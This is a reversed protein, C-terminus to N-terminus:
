GVNGRRFGLKDRLIDFIVFREGKDFLTLLEFTYGIVAAAFAVAVLTAWNTCLGVQDVLAYGFWLVVFVSVERMLPKYFTRRRVGIVVACYLPQVLAHRVFMLISSTGAIVTLKDLSTFLIM